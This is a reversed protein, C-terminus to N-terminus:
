YVEFLEGRQGSVNRCKIHIYQEYATRYLASTWGVMERDVDLIGKSVLGQESSNMEEIRMNKLGHNCITMLLRSNESDSIQQILRVKGSVSEQLYQDVTLESLICKQLHEYNFGIKTEYQRIQTEGFVSEDAGLYQRALEREKGKKVKRLVYNYSIQNNYLRVHLGDNIKQM